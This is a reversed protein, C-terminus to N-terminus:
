LIKAKPILRTVTFKSRPNKGVQWELTVTARILSAIKIGGITQVSATWPELTLIGKPAEAGTNRTGSSTEGGPFFKWLKDVETFEGSVTEMGNPNPSAGSWGSDVVQKTELVAGDMQTYGLSELQNIKHLAMSSAVAYTNGYKTSRTAIPIIAAFLLIMITFIM